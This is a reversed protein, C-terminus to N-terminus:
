SKAKVKGPLGLNCGAKLPVFPSAIGGSGPVVVSYAQDISQSIPVIREYTAIYGSGAKVAGAFIMPGVPGDRRMLRFGIKGAKNTKIWATMKATDPCVKTKPGQIGLQASLAKMPVEPPAALGADGGTKIKCPVDLTAWESIIGKGVVEVMYKTNTAKEIPVPQSHVALFKGNGLKKSTVTIPKSKGGGARRYIFTVKGDFNTEFKAILGAQAPCANTKPLHVDLKASRVRFKKGPKLDDTDGVPPPPPSPPEHIGSPLARCLLRFPVLAFADRTLDNGFRSATVEMTISSDFNGPVFRDPYKHLDGSASTNCAGVAAVAVTGLNGTSIEFERDEIVRDNKPEGVGTTFEETDVVKNLHKLVISGVEGKKMKIDIHVSIKHKQSLVSTWGQTDGVVVITRPPVNIGTLEIKRHKFLPWFKAQAPVTGAVLVGATALLIAKSIM